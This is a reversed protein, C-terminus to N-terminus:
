EEIHEITTPSDPLVEGDIVRGGERKPMDLQYDLTVNVKLHSHKVELAKYDGDIECLTRIASIAVSHNKADGATLSNDIIRVLKQRKWAATIGHLLAYQQKQLTIARAVRPIKAVRSGASSATNEPYGARVAAVSLAVEGSAAETVFRQQRSTLKSMADSLRNGLGNMDDLIGPDDDFCEPEPAPEYVVSHIVAPEDVPPNPKLWDPYDVGDM